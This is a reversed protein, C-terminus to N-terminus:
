SRIEVEIQTATGYSADPFVETNKDYGNAEGVEDALNEAAANGVSLLKAGSVAALDAAGQADRKELFINAGDIGLAMLALMGPVLIAFLALTQGSHPTRHPATM